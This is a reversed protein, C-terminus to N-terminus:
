RRQGADRFTELMHACASASVDHFLNNLRYVTEASRGIAPNLFMLIRQLTEASMGIAKAVVVIPEGGADNTMMEAVSVGIFLSRELVAAFERPNRQLAAAE